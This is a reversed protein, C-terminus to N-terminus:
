FSYSLTIKTTADTKRSYKSNPPIKTYNELDFSIKAAVPGFLSTKLENLSHTKTNQPSMDISINQKFSTLKTMEYYFQSEIHGIIENRHETTSAIKSQRMGPGGSMNWTMYDTRFINYGYGVSQTLEYNFASFHDRIGEGRLYAFHDVSLIYYLTDIISYKEANREKYQTKNNKGVSLLGTARFTNGFHVQKFESLLSGNLHKANNNGNYFLMGLDIENQWASDMPPPSDQGLTLFPYSMLFIIFAMKKVILRITVM